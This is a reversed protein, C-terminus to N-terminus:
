FLSGIWNIVIPFAVLLVKLINGLQISSGTPFILYRKKRSLKRQEVKQGSVPQGADMRSIAHMSSIFFTLLLLLHFIFNRNFM